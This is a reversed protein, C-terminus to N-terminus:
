APVAPRDAVVDLAVPALQGAVADRQVGHSDTADLLDALLATADHIDRATFHAVRTRSAALVAARCPALRADSEHLARRERQGDKDLGALYRLAGTWAWQTEVPGHATTLRDRLTPFHWLGVPPEDALLDALAEVDTPPRPDLHEVDPDFPVLETRVDFGPASEVMRDDALHRLVRVADAAQWDYTYPGVHRVPGVGAPPEGPGTVTIRIAYQDTSDQQDTSQPQTTSMSSRGERPSNTDPTPTNM